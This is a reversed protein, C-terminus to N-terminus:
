IQEATYCIFSGFPHSEGIHTWDTYETYLSRMFNGENNVKLRGAVEKQPLLKWLVAISSLVDREENQERIKAHNFGEILPLSPFHSLMVTSPALARMSEYSKKLNLVKM